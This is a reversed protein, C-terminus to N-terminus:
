AKDYFARTCIEAFNSLFQWGQYTQRLIDWVEINKCKEILFGVLNEFKLICYSRFVASSKLETFLMQKAM